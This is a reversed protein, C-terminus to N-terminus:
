RRAPPKGGRQPAAQADDAAASQKMM